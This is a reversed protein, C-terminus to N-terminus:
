SSVNTCAYWMQIASPKKRETKDNRHPQQDRDSAAPAAVDASSAISTNGAKRIDEASAASGHKDGDEVNDEDASAFRGLEAQSRVEAAHPRMIMAAALMDAAADQGHGGKLEKAKLKHVAAAVSAVAPNQSDLPLQKPHTWTVVGTFKNWYYVDGDGAQMERWPGIRSLVTGAEATAAAAAKAPSRMMSTSSAAPQKQQSTHSLQMSPPLPSTYRSDFAAAAALSGRRSRIMPSSGPSIKAGMSSRLHGIGSGKANLEALITATASASTQLSQMLEDHRKARSSSSFVEIVVALLLNSVIVITIALYSFILLSEYFGV